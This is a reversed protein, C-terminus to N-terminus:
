SKDWSDHCSQCYYEGSYKWLRIMEFGCFACRGDNPEVKEWKPTPDQALDMQKDKKFLVEWNGDQIVWTEIDRHYVQNYSENFRLIGLGMLSSLHHKCSGKGMQCGVSVESLNHEGGNHNNNYMWELVRLRTPIICDWCLKRCCAMAEDENLGIIRYSKYMKKLQRYFRGPAEPYAENALERSKDTDVSTRLLTTQNAMTQLMKNDYETFVYEEVKINTEWNREQMRLSARMLDFDKEVDDIKSMIHFRNGTKTRWTMFRTGMLQDELITRDIVPTSGCILTNNPTPIDVDTKNGFRKHLRGDYIMRMDSFITSREEFPKSMMISLDYIYWIRNALYEAFQPIDDTAKNRYGSVFTHESLDDISPEGEQNYARLMESKGDSSPGIIMLWVPDGPLRHSFKVACLTWLTMPDEIHLWNKFREILQDLERRNDTTTV